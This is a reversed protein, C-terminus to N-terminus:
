EREVNGEARREDERFNEFTLEVTMKCAGSNNQM